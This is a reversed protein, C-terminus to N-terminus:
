KSNRTGVSASKWAFTMVWVMYPVLVARQLLGQYPLLLAHFYPVKTVLTFLLLHVAIVCGAVLTWIRFGQWGAMNKLSRRFVFCTTPMLVFVIGGLIGHILGHTTMNERPTEMPDMVFPGSLLFCIASILLVIPGAKSKKETAHIKWLHSAFVSLLTGFVLFNAIQIGGREGLSLASVHMAIASYGARLWGEITFVAVFLIPAIMGALLPLPIGSKAKLNEM